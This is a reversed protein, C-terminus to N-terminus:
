GTRVQKFIAAGPRSLRLAAWLVLFMPLFLIFALTALSRDVIAKAVRRAGAFEPEEVHLLPLGTMPRIHLRPGASRPAAAASRKVPYVAGSM